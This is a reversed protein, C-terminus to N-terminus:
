DDELRLNYKALLLNVISVPVEYISLGSEDAGTAETIDRALKKLEHQLDFGVDTVANLLDHVYDVAKHMASRQLISKPPDDTFEALTRFGPEYPESDEWCTLIYRKPKPEETPSQDTKQNCM